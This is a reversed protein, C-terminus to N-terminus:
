VLEILSSLRRSGGTRDFVGAAGRKIASATKRVSADGTLLITTWRPLHDTQDAMLAQGAGDPLCEYAVVLKFKNSTLASQARHLDCKWTVIAQQRQVIDRLLESEASNERHGFLISPQFSEGRQLSNESHFQNM